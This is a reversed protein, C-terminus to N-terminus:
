HVYFFFSYRLIHLVSSSADEQTPRLWFDFRLLLCLQAGQLFTWSAFRSVSEEDRAEIACM